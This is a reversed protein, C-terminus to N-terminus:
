FNAKQHEPLQHNHNALSPRLKCFFVFKKDVQVLNLLHTQCCCSRKDWFKNINALFEGADQYNTQCPSNVIDFCSLMISPFLTM